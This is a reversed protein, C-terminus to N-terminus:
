AQGADPAPAPAGDKSKRRRAKGGETMQTDPALTEPREAEPPRVETRQGEPELRRRETRGDRWSAGPPQSAVEVGGMVVRGSVVLNAARDGGPSGTRGDRIGGMTTELELRVNWEEPVVLMLGGMVVLVDLQAPSGAPATRRLDLLVGGMLVSVVADGVEDGTPRLEAGGQVVLIHRRGGAYRRRRERFV